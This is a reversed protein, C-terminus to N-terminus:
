EDIRWPDTFVTYPITKKSAGSELDLEAVVVITPGFDCLEV